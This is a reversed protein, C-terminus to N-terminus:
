VSLLPDNLLLGLFNDTLVLQKLERYEALQKKFGLRELWFLTEDMREEAGAEGKLWAVWGEYFPLFVAEKVHEEQAIRTRWLLFTKEAYDNEKLLCFISFIATLTEYFIDQNGPLKAFQDSKKIAVQLCRWLLSPEMSIGVRAFLRLEYVGWTDTNLLYQKAGSLCASYKERAALSPLGSFIDKKMCYDFHFLQLLHDIELSYHQQQYLCLSRYKEALGQLEGVDSIEGMAAVYDLIEAQIPSLTQGTRLLQFEDFRVELKDLLRHFRECSITTKDNEFQSLLSLSLQEDVLEKMLLGKSKRIAKITAGYSQM